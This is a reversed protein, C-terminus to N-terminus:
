KDWSIFAWKIPTRRRFLWQQEGIQSLRDDIYTELKKEEVPTVNEVMWITSEIAEERSSFVKEQELEIYDIKPHIGMQYLLNVTIIYDPGEEFPRGLASFLDPDFPGSGVKDAIFVKQTAYTDLKVLAAQLDQVSLSRSSLTVDYRSISLKQWDDDWSAEMTHINPLRKQDSRSRLEQLMAHSFDIATVSKVREALPLALTGPGCGVDLVSWDEQPQMLNLFSDVYGSNINRKAFSAARQNWDDSKKKKWSKKRRGEQWMRNWDIDRYLM